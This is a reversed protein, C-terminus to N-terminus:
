ERRAEDRVRLALEVFPAVGVAPPPIYPNPGEDRRLRDLDIPPGAEFRREYGDRRFAVFGRGRVELTHADLDIIAATHETVGLIAIGSPLQQELQRLRREGMYCYRTDHTGGEANDYHPIM